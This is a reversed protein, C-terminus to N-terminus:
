GFFEKTRQLQENFTWKSLQFLGKSNTESLASLFSCLKDPRFYVSVDDMDGIGQMDAPNLMPKGFAVAINYTGSIKETIYKKLQPHTANVLPLMYDCQKVYAYFVNDPIYGNFTIFNSQLGKEQIRRMLDPGDAKNINGLIVFKIHSPYQRDNNLLMGYDRRSYSVAGPIVLWIEGEPKVLPETEIPPYFISYITRYPKRCATPMGAALIDSLLMFKDIRRSIIKQGFSSSLKRLNHITGTVTFRKPLPLMFFKLATSGQATNYHLCKAKSGLVFRYYKALAAIGKWGSGFNFFEIRDAAEALSATIRDRIKANAAVIVEFGSAKLLKCISFLCEDHWTYFETVIIRPKPQM